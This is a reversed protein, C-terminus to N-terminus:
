DVWLTTLAARGSQQFLMKVITPAQYITVGIFDTNSLQGKWAGPFIEYFTGITNPIRSFIWTTTNFNINRTESGVYYKNKVTTISSSKYMDCTWSRYDQSNNYFSASKIFISDNNLKGLEFTYVIKGDGNMDMSFQNNKVEVTQVRRTAVYDATCKVVGDQKSFYFMRLNEMNDKGTYIGVIYHNLLEDTTISKEIKDKKCGILLLLLVCSFLKITQQLKKM